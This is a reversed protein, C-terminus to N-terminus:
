NSNMKLKVFARMMPNKFAYRTSMGKGLKFLIEGRSETTLQNLNYNLNNNKSNSKTLLNYNKVVDSVTFSNFEDIDCNACSYLLHKWKNSSNSALIAKRFSIRLQESTNEIGKNIAIKLYPESFNIKENEIM